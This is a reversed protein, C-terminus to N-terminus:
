EGSVLGKLNTYRKNKRNNDVMEKITYPDGTVVVLQKGRTVATYLLNRYHLRPHRGMLPLIVAEFENGQSKHITIAYALELEDAMEFSYQAVRDEFRVLISKSPRDILDIIGIDGNFIGMGSEGNEKEWVIDYNNKIQMVKDGERFSNFPTKHEQKKQNPPNLQEQMVRNLEATGLAGKRSPCIIQIDWLPSFGYKKPLRQSVLEAVLEACRSINNRKIFFFDNDSQSIDPFQGKVISHSNTVILSKAAQRFIQTLHVKKVRDSDILDRLVNGAGVSPLQDTDGVMILKSGMRIAKILHEFLCIDVMSMEDVVVADYPLPNQLNRKFSNLGKENKFDVELLRHITKAERGTVESMRKAARGTPAALAVKYGEKDLIDIIGKLTTTKGTGPGGTLIFVGSNAADSIAKRQLPAYEIGRESQLKDIEAERDKEASYATMLMMKIRGAVYTEADYLHPLYIYRRGEETLSYLRKEELMKEMTELVLDGDINILLNAKETLKEDPVCAHGSDSNVSLVHRMAGQIRFESDLPLSLGMAIADAKAFDFGIDGGCLLYPNESIVAPATLGWNKWVKIAQASDIGYKSLQIMVTRIGYLRKFEVEVEIAKKESIGKVVCLDMPSNEMIDLTKDGFKDVIRKALGAGIGKIVGTALYKYISSAGSPLAREIYDAKFQRGYTPHAAFVGTATISEGVSIDAFSGVVTLLEDNYDIELVTFGNEENRFVIDEVSGAISERFDRDM